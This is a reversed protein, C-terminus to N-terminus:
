KKAGVPLMGRGSYVKFGGLEPKMPKAPSRCGSRLQCMAGVVVEGIACYYTM